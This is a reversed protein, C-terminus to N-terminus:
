LWKKRRFYVLLGFALVVFVVWLIPYAYRWKLEPMYEFNMGYVGAIFTLPIFISAFVTLVKMIENMKNSISTQYMDMLSYVMDRQLEITESIRLVHDYVDNFYIVTNENILSSESRIISSLLERHPTISRRIYILEKKINQLRHLTKAGPNTLIDEEISDIIEDLSEILLFNQDIINDLIAYVLYDSGFKRIRSKSNQIRKLVPLFLDDRKEKFTLITNSLLVISVQEYVIASSNDEMSLSKAVIFHYDDNEEFKPRQHTNLIDELVLPHIKFIEGISKIFDINELGEIHVWTTVDKEEAETKVFPLLENADEIILTELSEKNYYTATIQPKLEKIEGIHVLSGPSLGSKESLYNSNSM